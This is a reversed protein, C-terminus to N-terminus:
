GSWMPEWTRSRRKRSRPFRPAAIMGFLKKNKHEPFLKSFSELQKLFERIDGDRLRLKIEVVVATNMDGHSYALVDLEVM